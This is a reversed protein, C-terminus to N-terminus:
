VGIENNVLFVDICAHLHLMNERRQTGDSVLNLVRVLRMNGRATNDNYVRKSVTAM